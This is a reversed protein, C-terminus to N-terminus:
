HPRDDAPDNLPNPCDAPRTLWRKDLAEIVCPFEERKLYRNVANHVRCVWTSLETRNEVKPPDEQLMHVLYFSCKRCPYTRALSSYFTLFLAKQEASPRDPYYAATTHMLTWAARGLVTKDPPCEIDEEEAM